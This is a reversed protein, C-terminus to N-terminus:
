RKGASIEASKTSVDTKKDHQTVLIDHETDGQTITRECHPACALNRQGNPGRYLTVQSSSPAGVTIQTNLVEAGAGDVAILNTNGFMRGQVYILKDTVLMADAIAPNGVLVTKVPKDLQIVKSQDYDVRYHGPLAAETGDAFAAASLLSTAAAALLTARFASM